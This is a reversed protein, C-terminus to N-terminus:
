PKLQMNQRKLFCVRLDFKDVFKSLNTRNVIKIANYIFVFKNTQTNKIPTQHNNKM